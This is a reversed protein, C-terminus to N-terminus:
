IGLKEKVIEFLEDLRDNQGYIKSQKLFTHAEIYDEVEVLFEVYPIYALVNRYDVLTVRKLEDLALDTKGLLKYINARKYYLDLSNPRHKIEINICKLAEKYHKNDAYIDSRLDWAGSFDYQLLELNTLQALSDQENNLKYFCYAKRYISTPIPKLDLIEDLIEIAEEYLDQDMKLLAYENQTDINTPDLKMARQLAIDAMAFNGKSKHKLADKVYEYTSFSM